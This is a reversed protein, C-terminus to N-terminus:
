VHWKVEKGIKRTGTEGRATREGREQDKRRGNGRGGSVYSGEGKGGDDAWRDKGDHTRKGPLRDM